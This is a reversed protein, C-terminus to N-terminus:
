RVLELTQVETFGERQLALFKEHKFKADLQAFRILHPLREEFDLAAIRLETLTIQSPQTM